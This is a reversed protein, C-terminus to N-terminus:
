EGILKNEFGLLGCNVNENIRNKMHEAYLKIFRQKLFVLQSSDAFWSKFDSYLERITRAVEPQTEYKKITLDLDYANARIRTILKEFVEGADVNKMMENKAFELLHTPSQPPFVNDKAYSVVLSKFADDDFDKFVDYWVRLVVHNSLDLKFNVYYANLYEIAEAFSQKNM